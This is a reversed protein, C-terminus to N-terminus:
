AIRVSPQIYKGVAKNINTIQGSFIEAWKTAQADDQIFANANFLMASLYLLPYKDLTDNTPNLSLPKVRNYYVIEGDYPATPDIETNFEIRGSHIAYAIPKSASRYNELQTLTVQKARTSNIGKDVKISRAELYDEPLDYFQDDFSVQLTTENEQVRLRENIMAESLLSFNDMQADLDSRHTWSAVDIKLQTYSM